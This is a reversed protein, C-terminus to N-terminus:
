EGKFHKRTNSSYHGFPKRNSSQKNKLRLAKELEHTRIVFLIMEIFLMLVGSIVGVMVRRVDVTSPHHKGEHPEGFVYNLLSGAFFYMFCGFSLPAVIMNLGISAAYTMSRTTVHDDDEKERVVNHTINQYQREEQSLKLRHLRKQFLQQQRTLPPPSTFALKTSSSSTTSQNLISHVKDHQVKEMARLLAIPYFTTTVEDGSTSTTSTLTTYKQILAREEFSLATATATTDEHNPLFSTDEQQLQSWIDDILQQLDDNLQIGQLRKSYFTQTQAM